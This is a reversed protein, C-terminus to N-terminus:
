VYKKNGILKEYGEYPMLKCYQEKLFQYTKLYKQTRAADKSTFKVLRLVNANDELDALKVRVATFSTSLHKIYHDYTQNRGRSLLEIIFVLEKPIGGNMLVPGPVTGDEIIDHLVAIAREHDTTMKMMVRLPHLIYPEGAKDVQGAHRKVAISIAKELIDRM